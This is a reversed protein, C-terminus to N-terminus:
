KLLAPPRRRPKPAPPAVLVQQPAAVPIGAPPSSTPSNNPVTPTPIPSNPTLDMVPLSSAAPGHTPSPAPSGNPNLPPFEMSFSRELAMVAEMPAQTAQVAQGLPQQVGQQQSLVTMLSENIHQRAGAVAGPSGRLSVTRSADRGCWPSVDIHCGTAAKIARLNEGKHGILAGCVREHIPVAEGVCQEGRLNAKGHFMNVIMMTHYQAVALDGGIVVLFGGQHDVATVQVIEAGTAAAFASAVEDVGPQEQVTYDRPVRVFLVRGGHVPQGSFQDYQIAVVLEQVMTPRHGM